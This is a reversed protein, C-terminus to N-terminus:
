QTKKIQSLQEQKRALEQSCVTSRQKCNRVEQRYKKSEYECQAIEKEISTVRSQQMDRKHCCKDEDKWILMQSSHKERLETQLELIQGTMQVSGNQLTSVRVGAWLALLLLLTSISITDLWKRVAGWNIKPLRYYLAAVLRLLLALVSIQPESRRPKSRRSDSPEADWKSSRSARPM